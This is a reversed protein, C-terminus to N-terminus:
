GKIAGIMVGKTFYKQAFPYVVIIPFVIVVIFAAQVSLPLTVAEEGTRLMEEIDIASVLVRRLIMQVPMLHDSRLYLLAPFFSNWHYVMHFVTLTAIIPKSLPLVIKFLITFDNAGDILASERLSEPHQQLFTRYIIVYWATMATPLIIAWVTDLMGLAQIWLFRPIMGERFLMTFLILFMIINKPYFVRLSLPYATLSALILLAVTGTVVYFVSILFGNVIGEEKFVHYYADLQFGIPLFKVRGAIVATPRSLSLSITYIFPYLMVAIMILMSVTVMADLIRDSLGEKMRRKRM